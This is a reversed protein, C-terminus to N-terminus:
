QKEPREAIRSNVYATAQLLLTTMFQVTHLTMWMSPKMVGFKKYIKTM